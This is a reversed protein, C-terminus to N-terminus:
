EKWPEVYSLPFFGIQFHIVSMVLCLFSRHSLLSVRDAIQGKWWGRDEGIVDVLTLRDGKRLTLFKPETADFDHIVRFLKCTRYANRLTTNLSNFSECLNNERYYNVLEVIATSCMDRM